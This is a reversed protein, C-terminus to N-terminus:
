VRMPMATPAVRVRMERGGADGTVTRKWGGELL